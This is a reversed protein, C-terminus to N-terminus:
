AGFARFLGYGIGALVAAGILGIAALTKRDIDCPGTWEGGDDDHDLAETPACPTAKAGLQETDAWQVRDQQRKALYPEAQLKPMRCEARDVMGQIDADPLEVFPAAKFGTFVLPQHQARGNM